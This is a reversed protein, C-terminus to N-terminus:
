IFFDKQEPSQTFIYQQDFKKKKKQIQFVINLQIKYRAM